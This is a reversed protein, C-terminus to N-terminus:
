VALKEEKVCIRPLRATIKTGKSKESYLEIHGKLKDVCKKALYLGLGSGKSDETGKYFMDFVKERVGEDIGLGNDEVSISIFGPEELVEVTCFSESPNRYKVSNSLINHILIYLIERDGQIVRSSAIKVRFLIDRVSHEDRVKNIIGTIFQGLHIETVDLNKQKINVVDVLINLIKNLKEASQAILMNHNASCNMAKEMESLKLLGKITAVPGKLDHSARYMFTNLEEHINSLEEQSRIREKVEEQLKKNAEVLEITRQDVLVELEANYQKLKAETENLSNQMAKMAQLLQGTEDKEGSEIKITRSGSAIAEAVSVSMRLAKVIKGTIMLSLAGGVILCASTIAILLWITDAEKRQHKKIQLGTFTQMDRLLNILIHDLHKENRIVVEAQLRAPGSLGADLLNFVNEAEPECLAHREAIERIRERFKEFNAGAEKAPNHRMLDELSKHTALINKQIEGCAGTF